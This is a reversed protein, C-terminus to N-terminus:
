PSFLRSIGDILRHKSICKLSAQCQYLTQNHRCYGDSAVSCVRFIKKLEYSMDIWSSVSNLQPLRTDIHMCGTHEYSTSPVLPCLHSDYCVYEPLTYNSSTFSSRDNRYFLTVHGFLVPVEPFQFFDPCHESIELTPVCDSLITACVMIDQCERSINQLSGVMGITLIIDRKNQCEAFACQGDGCDLHTYLSPRCKVNECRFTPDYACFKPYQRDVPEDTGDLCDPNFTNDRLFDKPICQGNHCRYENDECENIELQDCQEEDLGDNICDIKGDCIERWDLCAPLSGGRNCVLYTYCSLGTYITLPPSHFYEKRLEGGFIETVIDGFLEYDFYLGFSYQCLPGIWPFTCNYFLMQQSSSKTTLYIEYEEVVDLPASWSYLQESSVNAMRLQAFTWNTAQVSPSFLAEYRVPKLPRICYLIIEHYIARVKRDYSVISDDVFYPLCDYMFQETETVRRNHYTHYMNFEQLSMSGALLVLLLSALM